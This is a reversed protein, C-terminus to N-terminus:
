AKEPEQNESENLIKVLRDAFTQAREKSTPHEWDFFLYLSPFKEFIQESKKVGDSAFM